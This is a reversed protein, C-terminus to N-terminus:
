GAIPSHLEITEIKRNTGLKILLDLKDKYAQSIETPNELDFLASRVIPVSFPVTWARLAKAIADMTNIGQM